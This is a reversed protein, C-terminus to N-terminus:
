QHEASDIICLTYQVYPPGTLSTITVSILTNLIGKNGLLIIVSQFLM